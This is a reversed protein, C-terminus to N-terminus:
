QIKEDYIYINKCDYHCVPISVRSCVRRKKCLYDNVKCSTHLQIENKDIFWSQANREYLFSLLFFHFLYERSPNLNRSSDHLSEIHSFRFDPFAFTSCRPSSSPVRERDIYIRKISAPAFFSIWREIWPSPRSLHFPRRGRRGLRSNRIPYAIRCLKASWSHYRSWKQKNRSLHKAFYKRICVHFSTRYDNSKYNKNM